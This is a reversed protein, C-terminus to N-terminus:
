SNGQIEASGPGRRAYYMFADELSPELVKVNKIRSGRSVLKHIIEPLVEGSDKVGLKVVYEGTESELLEANTFICRDEIEHLVKGIDFYAHHIELIITETIGVSRIISKPDGDVLITGDKLFVVRDAMKQAEMLHHTAYLITVKMKENLYKLYDLVIWVAEPSLGLTPEDLLFIPANKIMGLALVVRAQQGTSLSGFVRNKLDEIELTRLAEDLTKESYGFLRAMIKLNEGVTLGVHAWAAGALLSPIYSINKLVERKQHTVDYGAVFAKGSTPLLFTALIRILTTKGSGNPGVLFVFEGERVRLNIGKLAQVMTKEARLRKWINYLFVGGHEWGSEYYGKLVYTKFIRTLEETVIANIMSKM